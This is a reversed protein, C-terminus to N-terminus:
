KDDSHVGKISVSSGKYTLQIFFVSKKKNNRYLDLREKWFSQSLQFEFCMDRPPTQLRLPLEGHLSDIIGAGKM